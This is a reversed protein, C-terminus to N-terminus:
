LTNYYVIVLLVLSKITWIILRFWSSTILKGLAKKSYGVTLKQHRQLQFLFTWLWYLIGLVLHICAFFILIDTNEYAILFLSLVFDFVMLPGTLYTARKLSEREYQVFGEKIRNLLPYHILQIFWLLGLLSVCSLIQFILILSLM